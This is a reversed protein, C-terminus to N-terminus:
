RAKGTLIRVGTAPNTVLSWGENGYEKRARAAMQKAGKLSESFGVFNGVENGAEAAYVFYASTVMRGKEYYAVSKAYVGRPAVHWVAVANKTDAESAAKKMAADLTEHYTWTMMGSGEFVNVRFMRKKEAM